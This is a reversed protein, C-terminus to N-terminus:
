VTSFSLLLVQLQLASSDCSLHPARNPSLGASFPVNGPEASAARWHLYINQTHLTSRLGSFVVEFRELQLTPHVLGWGRGCLCGPIRSLFLIVLIPLSKRSSAQNEQSHQSWPAKSAAGAGLAAEWKTILWEQPSRGQKCHHLFGRCYCFKPLVLPIWLNLFHMNWEVLFFFPNQLPFIFSQVKQKHIEQSTICTEIQSSVLNLCFKPNLAKVLPIHARPFQDPVIVAETDHAGSGRSGRSSCHLPVQM